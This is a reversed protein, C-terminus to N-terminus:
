GEWGWASGTQNESDEQEDEVDEELEPHPSCRLYRGKSYYENRQLEVEKDLMIIASAPSQNKSTSPDSSDGLNIQTKHGSLTGLGGLHGSNGWWWWM